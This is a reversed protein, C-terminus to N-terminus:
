SARATNAAIGAAVAILAATFPNQEPFGVMMAALACVLAVKANQDTAHRLVMVLVAAAAALGVLGLEAMVQVVANHAAGALVNPINLISM